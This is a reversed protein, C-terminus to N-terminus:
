FDVRFIHQKQRKYKIDDKEEDRRCESIAKRERVPARCVAFEAAEGKDANLIQKVRQFVAFLTVYVAM